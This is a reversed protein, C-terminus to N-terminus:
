NRERNASKIARYLRLLVNKDGKDRTALMEAYRRVQSRGSEAM